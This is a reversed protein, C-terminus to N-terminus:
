SDRDLWGNVIVGVERLVFAVGQPQLLEEIADAIQATQPSRLRKSM